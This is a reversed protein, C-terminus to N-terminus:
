VYDLLLFTHIFNSLDINILKSPSHKYDVVLESCIYLQLLAALLGGLIQGGFFFFFFFFIGLNEIFM